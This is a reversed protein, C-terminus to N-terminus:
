YEQIFEILDDFNSPLKSRDDKKIKELMEKKISINGFPKYEQFSKLVYWQLYIIM